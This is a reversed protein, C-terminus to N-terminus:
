RCWEAVGAVTLEEDQTELLDDLSPEPEIMGRREADKRWYRASSPDRRALERLRMDLGPASPMQQPVLLRVANALADLLDNTRGNPFTEYEEILELMGRQIYIQGTRFFPQLSKIRSEKKENRDPHLPIVSYWIHRTKMIREMFPLLAQQYAIAEIGIVRPQWRYAMALMQDIIKYPDGQRGAWTELVFVRNGPSIGAAILATRCASSKESIAPDCTLVVDLTNRPVIIQPM